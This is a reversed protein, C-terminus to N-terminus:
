VLLAKVTEKVCEFTDKDIAIHTNPGIRYIESVKGDVISAQIKEPSGNVLFEFNHIEISRKLEKKILKIETM